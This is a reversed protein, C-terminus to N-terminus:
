FYINSRSQWGHTFAGHFLKCVVKKKKSRNAYLCIKMMLFEIDVMLLSTIWSQLKASTAEWFEWKMNVSTISCKYLTNLLCICLVISEFSQIELCIFSDCVQTRIVLLCCVRPLYFTYNKEWYHMLISSFCM